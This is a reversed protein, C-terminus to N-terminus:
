IRLYRISIEQPLGCRGCVTRGATSRYAHFGVGGSLDIKLKRKWLNRGNGANIAMVLGKADAVYLRDGDLAPQLHLHGQGQGDGVSVSWRKRIKISERIDTLAAPERPDEDDSSFWGSVTGCASLNFMLAVVLLIRPLRAIAHSDIM